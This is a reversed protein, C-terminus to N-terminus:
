APPLNSRGQPRGTRTLELHLSARFTLHSRAVVVWSRAWERTRPKAPRPQAHDPRAPAAAQPEAGRGREPAEEGSPQPRLALPWAFSVRRECGEARM